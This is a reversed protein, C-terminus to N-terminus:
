EWARLQAVDLALEGVEEAVAAAQEVAIGAQLGEGAERGGAQFVRL